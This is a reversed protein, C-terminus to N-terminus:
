ADRGGPIRRRSLVNALAARLHPADQEGVGSIRLHDPLGYATCDCVAVQFRALLEETVESARTVRVLLAGTVSPTCVLGVDQLLQALRDRDALLRSRRADIYATQAPWLEAARQALSSTEFSPRRGDLALCLDARAWLYGVRLGVVALSAGISRVCIVNPPPPLTLEDAQESLELEGQDIVFTCTPHEAALLQLDAFRVAAGSPWAPACLSVIAPQELGILERVQALDVAHGMREVARWQVVRGGSARAAARFEGPGPMVALVVSDPKALARGITWLLSSAGNGLMLQDRTTGLREAIADRARSATPDPYANLPTARLAELVESPPQDLSGPVTLDLVADRALNAATLRAQTLQGHERPPVRPHENSSM